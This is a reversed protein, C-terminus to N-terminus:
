RKPTRHPLDAARRRHALNHGHWVGGRVYVCGVGAPPQRARVLKGARLQRETSAWPCPRMPPCPTERGGSRRRGRPSLLDTRRQGPGAGTVPAFGPDSPVRLCTPDRKPPRPLELPWVDQRAPFLGPRGSGRRRASSAAARGGTRNGRSPGWGLGWLCAPWRPPRDSFPPGGSRRLSNPRKAAMNKIPAPTTPRTVRRKGGRARVRDCCRRNIRGRQSKPCQSRTQAMPSIAGTPLGPSRAARTQGSRSLSRTRPLLDACRRRRKQPRRRTSRGPGGAVCTPRWPVERLRRRRGAGKTSGPPTRAPSAEAAIVIGTHTSTPSPIAHPTPLSSCISSARARSRPRVSCSRSSSSIFSLNRDATECSSRVGMVM